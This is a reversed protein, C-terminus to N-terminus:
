MHSNELKVQLGVPVSFCLQVTEDERDGRSLILGTNTATLLSTGEDASGLGSSKNWHRLCLIPLRALSDLLRPFM